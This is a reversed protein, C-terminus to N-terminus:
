NESSQGYVETGRNFAAWAFWFSTYAAVQELKAGALPGDLAEGTISWVTGTEEDKLKFPFASGGVITFTLEQRRDTGSASVRGDFPIAMQAHDDWVVLVPLDQIVDNIAVKEGIGTYPYARAVGEHEIGLVREKIQLRPDLFSHPSFIEANDIENYTSYPNRVYNRAHGTNFSVVGTDPHLAKWAEWTSQVVPLLKLKKGRFDSCISGLFMQTWLSRATMDFMVNNNDQLFGSNAFQLLGDDTVPDFVLGSGTLPCFTVLVAKGGVFDNITEHWWLVNHPYARAEGNVVIGVVLFDAGM